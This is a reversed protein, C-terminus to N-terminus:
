ERGEFEKRAIPGHFNVIFMELREIHEKLAKIKLRQVEIWTHDEGIQDLLRQIREHQAVQKDIDNM